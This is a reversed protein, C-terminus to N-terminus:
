RVPKQSGEDDLPRTLMNRVKEIASLDKCDAPAAPMHRASPTPTGYTKRNVNGCLILWGPKLNM